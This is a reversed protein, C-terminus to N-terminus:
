KNRTPAGSRASALEAELDALMAAFRANVAPNGTHTSRFTFLAVIFRIAEPSSGLARDWGSRLNEDLEERIAFVRRLTNHIKKGHKRKYADLGDLAAIPQVLKDELIAAMSTAHVLLAALTADDGRNRNRALAPAAAAGLVVLAALVGAVRHRSHTPALSGRMTETRRPKGSIM